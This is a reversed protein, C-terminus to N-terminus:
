NCGIPPVWCTTRSSDPLPRAPHQDIARRLAIATMGPVTGSNHPSGIVNPLSLFPHDVRFSGHREPEVWWADICAFFGPNAQLHAFLPAEQIIEGRALNVLIADPKM